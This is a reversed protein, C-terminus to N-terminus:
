TKINAQYKQYAVCKEKGECVNDCVDVNVRGEENKESRDDYSLPCNLTIPPDPKKKDEGGQMGEGYSNMSDPPVDPPIVEKPADLPYPENSMRLWKERIEDQIEVRMGPIAAQHKTWWSKFSKWGLNIFDKRIPDEDGEKKGELEEAKQNNMWDRYFGWFTDFGKRIASAKVDNVTAGQQSSACLALYQSLKELNVNEKESVKVDFKDILHQASPEDEPEPKEPATTEETKYIDGTPKDKDAKLKENLSAIPNGGSEFSEGNATVMDIVEEAVRLGKIVDGFGDRLTWSRARMQLMRKPYKKWVNTGWLQALKADAVSFSRVIETKQDKRTATCIATLNDGEGHFAEDFDELLGSARVLGLVSDGWISPRGNIVAINQVASMPSLGVELGMQVAVAVAEPTQIGSPMMGSKAMMCALRWLQDLNHPILGGHTKLATDIGVSKTLAKDEEM